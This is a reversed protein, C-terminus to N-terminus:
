NATEELPISALVTRGEDMVYRLDYYCSEDPL